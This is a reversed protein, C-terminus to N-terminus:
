IITETRAQEYVSQWEGDGVWQGRKFIADPYRRENAELTDNNGGFLDTGPTHFYLDYGAMVRRGVTGDRVIAIALVGDDPLDRWTHVTSEFVRDDTYYARWM